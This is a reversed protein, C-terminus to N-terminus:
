RPATGIVNTLWSTEGNRLGMTISDDDNLVLAYVTVGGGLSPLTPLDIAGNPTATGLKGIAATSPPAVAFSAAEPEPEPEPEAHQRLWSWGADTLAVRYTRKGNVQREILGAKDAEIMAWTASGRTYGLRQMHDRVPAGAHGRADSIVGGHEAVFRIVLEAAPPVTSPEPEPPPAIEPGLKPLAEVEARDYLYARPNNPPHKRRTLRGARFAKGPRDHDDTGMIAAAESATVWGIDAAKSRDRLDQSQRRSREKHAEFAKASPQFGPDALSYSSTHFRDGSDHRVVEFGLRRLDSLMVHFASPSGSMEEHVQAQTLAEGRFLRRRIQGITSLEADPIVSAREDALRQEIPTAMM